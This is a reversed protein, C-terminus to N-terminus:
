EMIREERYGRVIYGTELSLIEREKLKVPNSVAAGEAFLQVSLTGGIFKDATFLVIEDYLGTTIFSNIVSGGGEVLVSAVGLWYLQELVEPLSLGGYDRDPSVFFHHEAEPNPTKNEAEASSFFILPFNEQDRYINLGTDLINNSDLIVRFLKKGQWDKERVTLQPNDDIVTSVGALIASFEGRMSHSYLRLEEDSIWQSKRYKDTLKGDISVGANLAVYPMKATMFKLYHRNIKSAIDQFLGVDVQVGHERLQRIGKGNVLPNPDQIAVVVRKVKKELILDTCPPTKGYHVCPELTVYLTTGTETVHELAKQEAHVAGFRAHYGTSLIRNNKVVVAGVMPNPETFGMGKKSLGLAIKMYKIDAM